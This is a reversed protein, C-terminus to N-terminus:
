LAQLSVLKALVLAQELSIEQSPRDYIAAVVGIVQINGLTQNKQVTLDMKIVTRYGDETQEKTIVKWECKEFWDEIINGHKDKILIIPIYIRARKKQNEQRVIWLNLRKDSGAIIEINRTQIIDARISRLDPNKELYYKYRINSDTLNDGNFNSEYVTQNINEEPNVLSILCFSFNMCSQIEQCVDEFIAEQNSVESIAQQIETEVELLEELFHKNNENKNSM